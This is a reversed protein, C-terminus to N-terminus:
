RDNEDQRNLPPFFSEKQRVERHTTERRGHSSLLPSERERLNGKEGRPGGGGQEEEKGEEESCLQPHL